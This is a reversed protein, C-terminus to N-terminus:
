RPETHQSGRDPREHRTAVGDPADDGRFGVAVEHGHDVRKALGAGPVDENDVSTTIVAGDGALEEGRLRLSAAEGREDDVAPTAVAGGKGRQPQGHPGGSDGGIRIGGLGKGLGADDKVHGADRDLRTPQDNTIVVAEEDARVLLERCGDVLGFRDLCALLTELSAQEIAGREEVDHVVVLVQGRQAFPARGPQGEVGFRASM